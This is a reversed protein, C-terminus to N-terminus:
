WKAQKKRSRAMRGAEQPSSTSNNFLLVKASTMKIWLKETQQKMEMGTATKIKNEMMM